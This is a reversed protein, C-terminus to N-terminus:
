PGSAGASVDVHQIDGTGTWTLTGAVSIKTISNTLKPNTGSITGTPRATQSGFAIPLFLGGQTWSFTTSANPLILNHPTSTTIVGGMIGGGGDMTFSDTVTTDTSIKLFDTFNSKINISKVQAVTTNISMTNAVAGDFIVDDNVGPM